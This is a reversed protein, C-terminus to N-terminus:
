GNEKEESIELVIRDSLLPIVAYISPDYIVRKLTPLGNLVTAISTPRDFIVDKLVLRTIPLDHILRIDDLQVGTLQLEDLKKFRTIWIPISCYVIESGFTSLLVIRKVEYLEEGFKGSDTMGSIDPKTVLTHPTGDIALLISRSDFHLVSGNQEDGWDINLFGSGRIDSHPVQRRKNKPKEM